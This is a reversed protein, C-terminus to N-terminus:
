RAKATIYLYATDFPIGDPTTMKELEVRLDNMFAEKDEVEAIVPTSRAKWWKM